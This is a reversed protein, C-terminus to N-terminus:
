VKAEKRKKLWVLFARSKEPFYSGSDGKEGKEGKLQVEAFAHLERERPTLSAKWESVLSEQQMHVEGKAGLLFCSKTPRLSSLESLFHLVNMEM